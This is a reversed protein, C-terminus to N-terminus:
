KWILDCELTELHGHVKCLVSNLRMNCLGMKKALEDRSIGNEKGIHNHEKLYEYLKIASNM